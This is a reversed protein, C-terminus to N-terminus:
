RLFNELFIDLKKNISSLSYLASVRSKAKEGLNEQEVETLELVRNMANALDEPKSSKSWIIDESFDKQLKTNKVSITPRGSSLYEITKSPISFRDLDESYPRPNINAIANMEYQLTRYGPITGLFLSGANAILIGFPKRSPTSGSLNVGQLYPLQASAGIFFLYSYLMQLSASKSCPILNGCVTTLSYFVFM